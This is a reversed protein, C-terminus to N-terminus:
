PFFCTWYSLSKELLADFSPFFYSLSTATSSVPFLPSQNIVSFYAYQFVLPIIQNWPLTLSLPDRFHSVKQCIERETETEREREWVCVWRCQTCMCMCACVNIKSIYLTTDQKFNCKIVSKISDKLLSRM